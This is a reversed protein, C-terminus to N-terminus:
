VFYRFHILVTELTHISQALDKKAKGLMRRGGKSYKRKLIGLVRHLKETSVHHYKHITAINDPYRSFAILLQCLVRLTSPQSFYIKELLDIIIPISQGYIFIDKSISPWRTLQLLIDAAKEVRHMISSRVHNDVMKYLIELGERRVRIASAESVYVATKLNDLIDYKQALSRSNLLIDMYKPVKNMLQNCTDASKTADSLRHKIKHLASEMNRRVFYGRYSSQIKAAARAEIEM